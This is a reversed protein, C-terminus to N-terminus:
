GIPETALAGSEPDRPGPNLRVPPPIRSMVTRRKRALM